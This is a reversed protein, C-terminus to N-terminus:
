SRAVAPVVDRSTVQQAPGSQFSAVTATLRDDLENNLHDRTLRITIGAVVLLAAAFLFVFTAVLRLGLPLSRRRKTDSRRGRDDGPESTDPSEATPTILVTDDHSPARM